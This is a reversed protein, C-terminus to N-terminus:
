LSVACCLLTMRRQTGRSGADSAITGPCWGLGPSTIWRCLWGSDQSAQAVVSRQGKVCITAGCMPMTCSTCWHFVDIVHSVDCDAHTTIFVAALVTRVKAFVVDLWNKDVIGGTDGSNQPWAWRRVVLEWKVTTRLASINLFCRERSNRHPPFM